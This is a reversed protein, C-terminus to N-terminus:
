PPTGLKPARYLPFFEPSIAAAGDIRSALTRYRDENFVVRLSQFEARLPSFGAKFHFLSDEGGGRGGGLHFVRNGREKAWRCVFDFMFKSPAVRLFEDATGSLHFQVIGAEEFFLGACAIRGDPATVTCLHAQGPLEARLADFYTRAFFYFPVAAVRQMTGEYLRIFEPYLGWDDMTAVFGDRNLKTIGRGHNKRAESWLKETSQTLDLLVVRGHTRVPGLTRLAASPFPLLPHLRIFASVLGQADGLERFATLLRSLAVEDAPNTALLGPYGYPSTADYWERSAGLEEPLDRILLPVLCATGQFEAYFAAPRGKEARSAAVAYEPLHYVDHPVRAVFARWRPDSPAIFEAKM